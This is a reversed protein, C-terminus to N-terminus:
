VAAEAPDVSLPSKEPRLAVQLRFLPACYRLVWTALPLWHHSLDSALTPCVEPMELPMFFDQEQSPPESNM